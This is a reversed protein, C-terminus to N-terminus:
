EPAFQASYLEFLVLPARAGGSGFPGAVLQLLTTVLLAQLHAEAQWASPVRPRPLHAIPLHMGQLQACPHTSPNCPSFWPLFLTLFDPSSGFSNTPSLLHSLSLNLAVFCVRVSNLLRPVACPCPSHLCSCAFPCLSSLSTVQVQKGGEGQGGM